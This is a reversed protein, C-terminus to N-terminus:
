GEGTGVNRENERVAWAFEQEVRVAKPRSARAVVRVRQPSFGAPLEFEGEVIQYYTFGLGIARKGDGGPLPLVREAGQEDRGIIDVNLEGDFRAHSEALAQVVVRYQFRREALPLATWSRIGLGGRAGPTLMEKYIAVQERLEAITQQQAKVGQRLEEVVRRDVEVGLRANAVQQSLREVEARSGALNQKLQRLENGPMNGQLLLGAAFSAALLVLVGAAALRRRRRRRVPDVVVSPQPCGPAAM